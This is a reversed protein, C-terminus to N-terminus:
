HIPQSLYLITRYVLTVMGEGDRFRAHAERLGGGLLEHAPGSTPIYSASMARGVLGEADLRQTCRFTQEWSATFVRSIYLEEPRLHWKEEPGRNAAVQVIDSYIATFPDTIDRENWMVALRGAPRLIRHFERLAEDPRFWHFAQAALVIDVSANELGTAEASGARMEVLRHAEAARRMAENPEIAAVRVGDEALLRSSIGTGAGVDAAHLGHPDGMGALMAQVAERPYSPRYRRYVDARDTFRGTPNLEYLARESGAAM